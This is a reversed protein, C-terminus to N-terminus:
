PPRTGPERDDDGRTPLLVLMLAWVLALAYFPMFRRVHRTLRDGDGPAAAAAARDRRAPESM